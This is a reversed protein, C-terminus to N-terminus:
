ALLRKIASVARANAEEAVEAAPRAPFRPYVALVDRAILGRYFVQRDAPEELVGSAFMLSVLRWMPNPSRVAIGASRNLASVISRGIPAEQPLMFVSVPRGTNLAEVTMSVSDSTVLFLDAEAMLARYLNPTTAETWLQLLDADSMLGKIFDDCTKGTRPSTLVLCAGGREQAERRAAEAIQTIAKKNLGDPPVSGGILVAIWPRPKGAMRELLANREEVSAMSSTALPLPLTVVNPAAPLGYQATTLILDFTTIEGAPRGLVIVKTRDGARAKLAKAVSAASAEAVVIADPWPPALSDSAKRDLLWRAAPAFDALKPWRFVLQKEEVTWTAAGDDGRGDCFMAALNRMQALDGARRHKLLWLSRQRMM